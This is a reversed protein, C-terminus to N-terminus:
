HKFGLMRHHYSGLKNFDSYIALDCAMSLMQLTEFFIFDVYTPYDGILFQNKGLFNYIQPLSKKYEDIIKTKDDTERCIRILRWRFDNIIGALM